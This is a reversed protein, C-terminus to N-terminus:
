IVSLLSCLEKTQRQLSKFLILLNRQGLAYPAGMEWAEIWYGVSLVRGLTKGYGIIDSMQWMISAFYITHVNFVNDHAFLHCM